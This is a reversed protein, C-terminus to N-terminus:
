NNSSLINVVFDGRLAQVIPKLKRFRVFTDDLHKAKKFHCVTVTLAYIDMMVTAMTLASSSVHVASVSTHYVPIKWVILIYSPGHIKALLQAQQAGILLLTVFELRLATLLHIALLIAPSDRTMVDM